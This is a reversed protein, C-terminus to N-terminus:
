SVSQFFLSARAPTSKEPSEFACRSATRATMRVSGQAQPHEIFTASHRTFSGAQATLRRKAANATREAEDPFFSADIRVSSSLYAFSGGGMSSGGTFNDVAPAGNLPAALAFTVM